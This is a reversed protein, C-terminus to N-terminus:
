IILIKRTTITSLVRAYNEHLAGEEGSAWCAKLVEAAREMNVEFQDLIDWMKGAEGHMMGHIYCGAVLSFLESGENDSPRERHITVPIQSGPIILVYDGVQSSKSVLCFYGQATTAFTHCSSFNARLMAHLFAPEERGKESARCYEEWVEWEERCYEQTMTNGLGDLDVTITRRYVERTSDGNLYTHSLTRAHRSGMEVLDQITRLDYFESEPDGPDYASKAIYVIQDMMLARTVLAEADTSM